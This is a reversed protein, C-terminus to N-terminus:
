LEDFWGKMRAAIKNVLSDRPARDEGHHALGGSFIAGDGAGAQLRYLVLGVATSYKPDSVEQVMGGTLGTPMGVRAEIGLVDSALDGVGPILSGGGTLVM